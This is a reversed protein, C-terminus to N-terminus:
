HGFLRIGYYSAEEFDDASSAEEYEDADAM